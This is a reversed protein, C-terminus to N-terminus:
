SRCIAPRPRPVGSNRSREARHCQGFARRSASLSTATAHFLVRALDVNARSLDHLRREACSRHAINVLCRGIQPAERAVTAVADINDAGGSGADAWGTVGDQLCMPPGENSRGAHTHIDILGAVVIKNRADITETADGSINAEIAVIKGGAIAVDRIADIGVSPDIIRGGRIILDYTAAFAKPARGLLVPSAAATCVFQRRNMM